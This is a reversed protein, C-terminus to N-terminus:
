LADAKDVSVENLIDQASKVKQWTGRRDCYGCRSPLPKGEKVTHRYGCNTCQLQVM